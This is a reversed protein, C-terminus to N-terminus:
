RKSDICEFKVKKNSNTKDLYNICYRYGNIENISTRIPLYTNIPEGIKGLDFLEINNFTSLDENLSLDFLNLHSIITNIKLNYYLYSSYDMKGILHGCIDGNYVAHELLYDDLLKSDKDKFKQVDNNLFRFYLNNSKIKGYGYYFVVQITPLNDSCCYNVSLYARGPKINSLDTIKIRNKLLHNYMDQNFNNIIKISSKSVIESMNDFMKAMTNDTDKYTFYSKACFHMFETLLNVYIAFVRKNFVNVRKINTVKCSKYINSNSKHIKRFLKYSGNINEPNFIVFGYENKDTDLVFDGLSVDNVM